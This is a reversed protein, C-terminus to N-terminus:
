QEFYVLTLNYIYVSKVKLKENKVKLKENKV